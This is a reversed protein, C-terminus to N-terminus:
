RHQRWGWGARNHHHHYQRRENAARWEDWEENTWQSNYERWEEATWGGRSSSSYGPNSQPDVGGAKQNLSVLDTGTMTITCDHNAGLMNHMENSVHRFFANVLANADTEVSRFHPDQFTLVEFREEVPVQQYLSLFQQPRLLRNRFWVYVETSVDIDQGRGPLCLRDVCLSFIYRAKFRPLLGTRIMESTRQISPVIATGLIGLFELCKPTLDQLACNYAYFPDKELREGPTLGGMKGARELHDAAHTKLIAISSRPGRNGRATNKASLVDDGFLDMSMEFGLLRALEEIRVVQCAKRLDTSTNLQLGCTTCLLYGECFVTQCRPCQIKPMVLQEVLKWRCDRVGEVKPDFRERDFRHESRELPEVPEMSSYPADLKPQRAVYEVKFYKLDEQQDRPLLEDVIGYLAKPEGLRTPQKISLQRSVQEYERAFREDREQAASKQWLAPDDEVDYPRMPDRPFEGNIYKEKQQAVYKQYNLRYHRYGHNAFFYAHKESGYGFVICFNPTWDATIISGARTEVLRVGHYIMLEMDLAFCVPMNQRAGPDKKDSAIWPPSATTYVHAKGSRMGGPFLGMKVVMEANDRDTYHYVLKPGLSQNCLHPVLPQRPHEGASVHVTSYIPDMKFCTKALAEASYADILNQEHGQIARLKVVRYPLGLDTLEGRRGVEVVVEFRDNKKLLRIFDEHSLNAVYRKRLYHYTPEYEVYLGYDFEPPIIKHHSKSRAHDYGRLLSTVRKSLWFEDGHLRGKPVEFGPLECANILYKKRENPEEVQEWNNPLKDMHFPYKQKEATTGSRSHGKPPDKFPAGPAKAAAAEPVKAADTSSSPAEAKQQKPPPGAAPVAAPSARKAPTIKNTKSSSRGYTGEPPTLAAKAMALVKSTPKMVKPPTAQVVESTEKAKPPPKRPPPGKPVVSGEKIAPEDPKKDTEETKQVDDSVRYRNITIEVVGSAVPEGPRITSDVLQVKAKPDNLKVDETELVNVVGSGDLHFEVGSIKNATKKIKRPPGGVIATKFVIEEEDEDVLQDSVDPGKGLFPELVADIVEWEGAVEKFDLEGAEFHEPEGPLYHDVGQTLVGIPQESQGPLHAGDPIIVEIKKEKEKIVGDLIEIEKMEKEAIKSDMDPEPLLDEMKLDASPEGHRKARRDILVKCARLRWLQYGLRAAAVYFRVFLNRNHDSNECHFHDYRTTAKLLSTGHVVVLGKKQLLEGERLMQQGYSRPLKYAEHYVPMLVVVSAIEPRKNLNALRELAAYHDQIRQNLVAEMADRRAQSQCARENEIYECDVFGYQGYIDNGAYSIMVVTPKSTTKRLEKMESDVADLIENLGRGWRMGHRVHNRPVALLQAADNKIYEGVNRRTHSEGAEKPFDVLAMSSDGALIYTATPEGPCKVGRIKLGNMGDLLSHDAPSVTQLKEIAVQLPNAGSVIDVVTAAESVNEAVSAFTAIKSALQEWGRINDGRPDDLVINEVVEGDFDCQFVEARRASEMSGSLNFDAEVQINAM